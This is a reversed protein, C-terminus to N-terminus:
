VVAQCIEFTERAVQPWGRKHKTAILQRDWIQGIAGEIAAAIKEPENDPILIGSDHDILEPTGGVATAVVPRGCNLAELVV